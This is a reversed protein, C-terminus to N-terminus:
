DWGAQSSSQMLVRAAKISVEPTQLCMGCGQVHSPHELLRQKSGAPLLLPFCQAPVSMTYSFLDPRNQTQWHAVSCSFGKDGEWLACHGESLAFGLISSSYGFYTYSCLAQTGYHVLRHSHWFPSFFKCPMVGFAGIEM